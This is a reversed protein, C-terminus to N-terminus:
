YSPQHPMQRVLFQALTSYETDWVSSDREVKYYLWPENSGAECMFCVPVKVGGKWSSRFSFCDKLWVWDGRLETVAFTKGRVVEQGARALQPGALRAGDIDCDPWRGTLLLNMRWVIYRWIADLTKRQFMLEEQIAVLLFRSCRISRPRFLPLNLYIGVM